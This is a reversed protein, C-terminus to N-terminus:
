REERAMLERALERAAEGSGDGGVMRALEDLRTVGGLSAVKTFTLGNRTEKRVSGHWAARAAIPAHHTIVILQHTRALRELVGGVRRAAEGGIGADVEDFVLTAIRDRAALVSKIALMVRSLEGGSAVKRLPAAAMGPNAALLFEVRDAGDPGPREIPEVMVELRAKPMHLEHLLRAVEAAFREAGARRAAGLRGALATLEARAQTLREGITQREGDDHDMRERQEAMSRWSLFLTEENGGHKRALRRIAELRGIVENLREPDGQMRDAYDRLTYALDELTARAEELRAPADAFDSDHEVIEALRRAVERVLTLLAPQDEALGEYLIAYSEAAAQQLTEAHALQDEERELEAMEGPQPNLQELESLQFQLYDYQREFDAAEADLERKRHELAAYTRWTRRYQDLLDESAAYADLAQRASEPRLLSQHEHQGHLDVLWEGIRRLDAVSVMQGNVFCRNRGSRAVERRIALDEGDAFELELQEGILEALEETLAGGFVAEVVALNEEARITQASAREGLALELGGILISKGAGTEGTLVNLGAAFEIHLSEITALNKISLSKLM